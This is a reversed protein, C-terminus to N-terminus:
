GYIVADTRDTGAHCWKHCSSVDSAGSYGGFCDSYVIFDSTAAMTFTSSADQLRYTRPEFGRTPEVRAM